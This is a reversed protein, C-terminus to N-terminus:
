TNIPEPAASCTPSCPTKGALEEMERRVQMEAHGEPISLKEKLRVSSPVDGYLDDLSKLGCVELMARDEERTTPVYTAM